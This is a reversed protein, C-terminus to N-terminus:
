VTVAHRPCEQIDEEVIAKNEEKMRSSSSGATTGHPPITDYQVTPLTESGTTEDSVAGAPSRFKLISLPIFTTLAYNNRSAAARQRLNLM